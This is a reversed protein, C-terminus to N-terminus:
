GLAGITHILGSSLRRILTYLDGIPQFIRAHEREYTQTWDGM